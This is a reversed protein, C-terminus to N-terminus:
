GEGRALKKFYETDDDETSEESWTPAVTKEAQPPRSRTESSQVSGGSNDTSGEQKGRPASKTGNMVMDLRKKLDEYSKFKDEAIEATLSFESKWIRDIEQDDQSVASQPAFESDEYTPFKGEKRVKLHFDAGEWFDYPNYGAMGPIEPNMKKNLKDFIKKGYKFLYVKGESAPNSPDKVVLINSIFNLKRKQRRAQNREDSKDDTNKAWLESNYESVPDDQGITTRSNEIFWNDGPGQFAHNFLKVFPVDEGQPADLFRILAYGNGLKDTTLKWYREDPAPAGGGNIKTVASQLKENASARNRKLDFISQTM